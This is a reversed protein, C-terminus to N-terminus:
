EAVYSKTGTVTPSSLIVNPENVSKDVGIVAPVNIDSNEQEKISKKIDEPEIGEVCGSYAVVADM